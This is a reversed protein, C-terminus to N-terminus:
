QPGPPLPTGSQNETACYASVRMPFVTGLTVLGVPVSFWTMAVDVKGVGKTCYAAEQLCTGRADRQVCEAPKWVDQFLGWVYSWRVASHPEKDIAVTSLGPGALRTHYSFCGGSALVLLLTLHRRLM